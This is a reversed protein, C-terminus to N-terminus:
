TIHLCRYILQMDATKFRKTLCLHIMRQIERQTIVLHMRKAAEIGIGFNNALTAADVGGKDRMTEIVSSVKVDYIQAHKSLDLLLTNDDSFAVSPTEIELDKQHLTCVQHRKPHCDGTLKLRGSDMM